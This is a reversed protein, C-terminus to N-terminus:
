RPAQGSGREAYGDCSAVCANSFKGMEEALEQPHLLWALHAHILPTVMGVPDINNEVTQGVSRWATLPALLTKALPPETKSMYQELFISQRLAIM